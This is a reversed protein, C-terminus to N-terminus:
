LNGNNNNNNTQKNTSNNQKANTFPFQLQIASAAKSEQVSKTAAITSKPINSVALSLGPRRM